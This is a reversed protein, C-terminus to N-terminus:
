GSLPTKVLRLFYQPSIESISGAAVSRTGEDVGMLFRTSADMFEGSAVIIRSLITRIKGRDAALTRAPRVVTIHAFFVLSERSWSLQFTTGYYRFYIAPATVV